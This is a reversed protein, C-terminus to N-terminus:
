DTPGVAIKAVPLAIQEQEQGPTCTGFFPESYRKATAEASSFRRSYRHELKGGPFM